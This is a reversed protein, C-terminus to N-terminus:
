VEVPVRPLVPPPPPPPPPHVNTPPGEKALSRYEGKDIRTMLNSYLQVDSNRRLKDRLFLKVSVSVYWPLTKLCKTVDEALMGLDAHDKLVEILTAWTVPWRLHEHGDLWELLMSRCAKVSQDRAAKEFNKIMHGRYELGIAVEEWKPAATDIIKVVAGSSGKLRQLQKPTPARDAHVNNIYTGDYYM